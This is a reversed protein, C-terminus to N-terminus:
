VRAYELGEMARDIKEIVDEVGVADLCVRKDFRCYDFCPRCKIGKAAAVYCRAGYPGIREIDGPGFIAVLPRKLAAAIHMPGSDNCIFLDVRKILAPLQRLDPRAVLYGNKVSLGKENPGEFFIVKAKYKAEVYKATEVFRALPWRRTERGAGPHIGVLLDGSSIGSASYFDEQWRKEREMVELCPCADRRDVKMRDLLNFWAEVRHRFKFGGQADTLFFGGGTWNYGLRSRAGTLFSLLNNRVDGRADIALDFREERLERVVSILGQWDWRWFRYKNQFKVWPFDFVIFKNILGAGSFLTQADPKSLLVIQAEPFKRRLPKFVSSAMILDGIGWLEIILVKKVAQRRRSAFLKEAALPLIFVCFLVANIFHAM